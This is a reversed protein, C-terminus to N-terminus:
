RIQSTRVLESFTDFMKEFKLQYMTQMGLLYNSVEDETMGRDLIGELLLNCDDVMNWCNMIQQELDFRDM